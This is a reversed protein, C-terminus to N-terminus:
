LYGWPAVPEPRRFGRRLGSVLGVAVGAGGNGIRRGPSLEFLHAHHDRGRRRGPEGFEYLGLHRFPLRDDPFGPDTDTISISLRIRVVRGWAPLVGCSFASM